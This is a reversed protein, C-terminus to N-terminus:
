RSFDSFKSVRTKINVSSHLLRMPVAHKVVKSASFTPIQHTRTNTQSSSIIKVALDIWEHFQYGLPSHPSWSQSEWFHQSKNADFRATQDSQVDPDRSLDWLTRRGNWDRGFRVLVRCRFWVWEVWSEMPDRRRRRPWELIFMLLKRRAEEVNKKQVYEM